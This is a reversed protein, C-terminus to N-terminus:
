ELDEEFGDAVEKGFGGAPQVWPGIGAVLGHDLIMPAEKAPPAQEQESQAQAAATGGIVVQSVQFQGDEVVEIQQRAGLLVGKRHGFGEIMKDPVDAARGEGLQQVLVGQPEDAHFGQVIEAELAIEDRRDIAGTVETEAVIMARVAQGPLMGRTFDGIQMRDQFGFEEGGGTQSQGQGALKDFVRRAAGGRIILFLLLIAFELGKIAQGTAEFGGERLQAETQGKVAQIAAAPGEGDAFFVVPM